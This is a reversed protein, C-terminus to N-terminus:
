RMECRLFFLEQVIPTRVLGVSGPLTFRAEWNFHRDGPCIRLGPDIGLVKFKNAGRAGERPFEIEQGAPYEGQLVYAGSERDWVYVEYTKEV